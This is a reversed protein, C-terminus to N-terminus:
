LINTSAVRYYELDKIPNLLESLTRYFKELGSKTWRVHDRDGVQLSARIHAYTAPTVYLVKTPQKM